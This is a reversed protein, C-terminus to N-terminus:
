EKNKLAKEGAELMEIYMNVEALTDVSEENFRDVDLGLISLAQGFRIDKHKTLFKELVNLIEMNANYRADLKKEVAERIAKIKELM